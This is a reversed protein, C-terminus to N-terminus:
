EGYGIEELIRKLENNQLESENIHELIKASIKELDTGSTNDNEGIENGVYRGPTLVYNNDKVEEYSASKCFGLEDQYNGDRWNHYTNAIKEIDDDKLKKLIRAQSKASVYSLSKEQLTKVHNYGKKILYLRVYNEYVTDGLYALVLSNVELVNM